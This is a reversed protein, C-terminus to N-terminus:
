QTVVQYVWAVLAAVGTLGGGVPLAKASVGTMRSELFRLRTEHDDIRQNSHLMHSDVKTELRVLVVMMQHNSTEETM